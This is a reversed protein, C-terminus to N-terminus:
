EITSQNLKKIKVLQGYSNEELPVLKESNKLLCLSSNEPMSVNDIMIKELYKHIYSPRDVFEINKGNTVAERVNIGLLLELWAAFIHRHCFELNDEYCLLVSNDLDKYIQEADLKSLVQNYYERIYYKINEEQLIVGINDHWIKWFSLKPALKPYCKGQYNADKGRNGSISYTTYKDSQWGKYSSTFIM